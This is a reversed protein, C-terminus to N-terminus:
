RFPSCSEKTDWVRELRRYVQLLNRGDGEIVLYPEGQGDGGPSSHGEVYRVTDTPDGSSARNRGEEGPRRNM